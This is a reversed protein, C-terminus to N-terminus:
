EDVNSYISGDPLITNCCIVNMSELSDEPLKARTLNGNTLNVRSLDLYELNCESLDIGSLDSNEHIVIM